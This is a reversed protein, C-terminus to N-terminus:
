KNLNEKSSRESKEPNQADIGTQIVKEGFGYIANCEHKKEKFQVIQFLRDNQYLMAKMQRATPPEIIM